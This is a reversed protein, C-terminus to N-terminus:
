SPNEIEISWEPFDVFSGLTLGQPDSTTVYYLTGGVTDVLAVHTATGDAAVTVGLQEAVVLRRGFTVGPALSFDPATLDVFALANDLVEQYTTPYLSCAYQRDAQAVFNLAADLADPICYKQSM